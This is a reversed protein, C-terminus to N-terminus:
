SLCNGQLNLEQVNKWKSVGELSKIKNKDLIYEYIVYICLKLMRFGM